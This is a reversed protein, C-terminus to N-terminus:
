VIDFFETDDWDKDKTPDKVLESKKSSCYADGSDAERALTGIDVGFPDGDSWIVITTKYLNKPKKNKPM